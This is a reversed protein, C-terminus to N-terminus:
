CCARCILRNECASLLIMSCSSAISTSRIVGTSASVASASNFARSLFSVVQRRDRRDAHASPPHHHPRRRRDRHNREAADDRALGACRAPKRNQGRRSDLRAAARHLHMEPKAPRRRAQIQARVSVLQRDVKRSGRRLNRGPREKPLFNLRDLRNSHHARARAPRPDHHLDIPLCVVRDRPQAVFYHQPNRSRSGDGVDRRGDQHAVLGPPARRSWTRGGPVLNLCRGLRHRERRSGCIRRSM